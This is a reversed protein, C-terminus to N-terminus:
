KALKDKKEELSKAKEDLKGSILDIAHVAAQRVLAHRSNDATMTKLVPLAAAANKKMSGLAVVCNLQVEDDRDDLGAMLEPIARKAKPGIAGLAQAAQVRAGVDPGKLMASIASVREPEVKDQINMIAMHAWIHVGPEEKDNLSKATIQDLITKKQSDTGVTGLWALSRIAAIRVLFASDNLSRSLAKLVNEPPGTQTRELGITGLATTAAQRVEWTDPDHSLRIL